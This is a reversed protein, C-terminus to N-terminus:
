DLLATMGHAQGMVIRKAGLALCGAEGSEGQRSGEPCNTLPLQQRLQWAGPTNNLAAAPRRTLASCERKLWM